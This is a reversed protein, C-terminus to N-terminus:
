FFYKGFIPKDDAQIGLPLTLATVQIMLYLCFSHLVNGLYRRNHKIKFYWCLIVTNTILFVSSLGTSNNLPLCSLLMCFCYVLLLGLSSRKADFVFSDEVINKAVNIDTQKLKPLIRM